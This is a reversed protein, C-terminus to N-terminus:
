IQPYLRCIEWSLYRATNRDGSRVCLASYAYRCLFVRSFHERVFQVCLLVLHNGGEYTSVWQVIARFYFPESICLFFCEHFYKKDFFNNFNLECVIAHSLSM